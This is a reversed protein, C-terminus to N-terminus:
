PWLPLGLVESLRVLTSFDPYAEGALISYVTSRSVKAAEAVVKLPRGDAELAASFKGAVARAAVASTPADAALSGSAFDGSALWTRPAPAKRRTM